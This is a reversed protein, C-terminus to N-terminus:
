RPKGGVVDKITKSNREVLNFKAECYHKSVVSENQYKDNLGKTIKLLELSMTVTEENNQISSAYNAFENSKGWVKKVYKKVDPKGCEEKGLVANTHVSNILYYENNDFKAMNYANWFSCGSLFVISISLILNKM